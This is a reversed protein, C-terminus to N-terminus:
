RSHLKNYIDLLWEKVIACHHYVFSKILELFFKFMGLGLRFLTCVKIVLMVLM